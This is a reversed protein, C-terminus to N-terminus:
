VARFKVAIGASLGMSSGCTNLAGDMAGVGVVGATDGFSGQSISLCWCVPWWQFM